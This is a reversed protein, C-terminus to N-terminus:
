HAFALGSALTMLRANLVYLMMTPSEILGSLAMGRMVVGIVM